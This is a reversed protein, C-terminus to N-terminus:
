LPNNKVEEILESVFRENKDMVKIAYLPSRMYKKVGKYKKILKDIEEKQLEVKVKNTSNFGESM